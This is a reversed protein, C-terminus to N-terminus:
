NFFSFVLIHGWVCQLVSYYNTAAASVQSEQHVVTDGEEVGELTLASVPVRRESNWSRGGEERQDTISDQNM